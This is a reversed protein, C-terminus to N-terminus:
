GGLEPWRYNSYIWEALRVSDHWRADASHAGLMAVSVQNGQQEFVVVFNYGAEDLYGTKGGVMRPRADASTTKLLVNTTEAVRREGTNRVVVTATAQSVAAAIVPKKLARQGLRAVDQATGTNGPELGAPDAFHLSALGLDKAKRNMAAVFAQPTLGTSRALAIASENSSAILMLHFLDDVSVTDGPILLTRGGTRQDSPQMVVLAQWDPNRDAVVLATMLKTISALPQPKAASQAYLAAGSKVDIVSVADAAVTPELTATSTRAPLASVPHMMPAAAASLAPPAPFSRIALVILLQGIWQAM